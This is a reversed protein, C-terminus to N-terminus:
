LVHQSSQVGGEGRVRLAQPRAILIYSLSTSKLAYRGESYVAMPLVPYVAM